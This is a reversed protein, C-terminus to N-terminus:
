KNDILGRGSKKALGKEILDESIADLLGNIFQKSKPTSYKKSVEIYENITVKVPISPFNMFEAIAMELVIRDTLALREIDWNKAKKAILGHMEDPLKLTADFLKEFFEKDDEFNYSVDQLDFEEPAEEDIAKLTKIVLSKIIARNEEWHIDREELFTEIVENKFIIKNVLYKLFEFDEEFTGDVSENYQIYKEDKVILRRLWERVEPRNRWQSGADLIAKELFKNLRLGNILLNKVFRSHNRKTDLTAQEHFALLLDLFSIYTDYLKEVDSLMQKRIQLKDERNKNEYQNIANEVTERVQEHNDSPATEGNALHLFLALAVKQNIKLEDKDQLEMSNLNPSYTERIYDKALDYNAEIRQKYAFLTQMVKIRLTRRNLM